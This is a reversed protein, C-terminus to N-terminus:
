QEITSGIQKTMNHARRMVQLQCTRVVVAGRFICMTNVAM